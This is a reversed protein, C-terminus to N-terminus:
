NRFLLFIVVMRSQNPQRQKAKIAIHRKYEFLNFSLGGFNFIDDLASMIHASNKLNKLWNKYTYETHPLSYSPKNPSKKLFM